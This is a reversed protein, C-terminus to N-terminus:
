HGVPLDTPVSAARRPLLLAGAASVLTLLLVTVFAARMGELSVDAGAGQAGTFLTLVTILVAIGAAGGLQQLTNLAASGHPYLHPPLSGMALTFLPTWMFALGVSILLHLTLLIGIATDMTVTSLLAWGAAAMVAGAVVLLRPGVREYVRGVSAATIAIAAGGPILLLGTELAGLGLANQLVLPFVVNLGFATMVMALFIGTSLSFDRHAFVRMDLMAADRRQLRWQRAVFAATGVVGVVLAVAAILLSSGGHSEGITSLGYLLAGFGIAALILSFVDIRVATTPDLNRIKWGGLVLSLVALPLVLLFIWRWSLQAVVIGSIAPSIAGAFAPVATTVAMLRGRKGEPALRIATTTLMPLLVATGLAQVIRGILLLEFGPAVAAIVTGITFLGMTAFFLARLTFRQMLFGSSPIIVAMTLAYATTLWQGVSATVKLEDMVQPLAVGMALESLIMVFASLSLVTIVVIENPSLRERPPPTSQGAVATDLHQSM